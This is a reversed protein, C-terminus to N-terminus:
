AMSHHQELLLWRIKNFANITAAAVWLVFAIYYYLKQNIKVLIKLWAVKFSEKVRQRYGMSTEHNRTEVRNQEFVLSPHWRFVQLLMMENRMEIQNWTAAHKTMM